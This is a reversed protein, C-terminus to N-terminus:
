RRRNMPAINVKCVSSNPQTEERSAEMGSTRIKASLGLTENHKDTEGHSTLIAVQFQYLGSEKVGTDM